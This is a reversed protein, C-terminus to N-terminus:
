IEQDTAWVVSSNANVASLVSIKCCGVSETFSFDSLLNLFM